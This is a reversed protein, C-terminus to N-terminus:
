RLVALAGISRPRAFSPELGFVGRRISRNRFPVMLSRSRFREAFEHLLNFAAVGPVVVAVRQLVELRKTIGAGEALLNRARSADGRGQIKKGSIAIRPAVRTTPIASQGCQPM